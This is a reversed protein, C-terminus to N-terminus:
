NGILKYHIKSRKNQFISYKQVKFKHWKKIKDQLYSELILHSLYVKATKRFKLNMKQKKFLLIRLRYILNKILLIKSCVYIKNM